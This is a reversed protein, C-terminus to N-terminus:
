FLTHTTFYLRWASTITPYQYQHFPIQSNFFDDRKDYLKSKLRGDIDMDIHFKRNM